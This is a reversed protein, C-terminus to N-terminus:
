IDWPPYLQVLRYVCMLEAELLQLTKGEAEAVHYSYSKAWVNLKPINQLDVSAM